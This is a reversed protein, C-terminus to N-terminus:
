KCGFDQVLVAKKNNMEKFSAGMLTFTPDLLNKRHGKDKVGKDILLLILAELAEPTGVFVNEAGCRYKGAEKIRQVFDKGTSSQHSIIGNRGKLDTAHTSAMVFLGQDPNLFPLNTQVRKLDATLSRSDISNAEPFQRLFEQLAYESFQGPNKRMLNTWYFFDQEMESLGAFGQSSVLRNWVATDRVPKYVFPKDQLVIVGQASCMTTFCFLLLLLSLLFRIM